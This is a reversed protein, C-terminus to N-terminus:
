LKFHLRYNEFSSELMGPLSTRGVFEKWFLFIFFILLLSSKNAKGCIKVWNVNVSFM